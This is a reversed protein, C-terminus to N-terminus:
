RVQGGGARGLAQHVYVHQRPRGAFQPHGGVTRRREAVGGHRHGKRGFGVGVSLSDRRSGPALQECVREVCAGHGQPRQDAQM